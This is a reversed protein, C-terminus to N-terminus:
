NKKKLRITSIQWVLSFSQNVEKVSIIILVDICLLLDQWIARFMCSSQGAICYPFCWSWQWVLLIDNEIFSPGIVFKRCTSYNFLSTIGLTEFSLEKRVDKVQYKNWAYVIQYYCFCLLVLYRLCHPFKCLRHVFNYILWILCTFSVNSFRHICM